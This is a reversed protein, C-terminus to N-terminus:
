DNKKKRLGMILLVLGVLLAIVGIVIWPTGPNVSGSSLFSVLQAELSSNQTVGYIASIAGAVMLIIGIIVM